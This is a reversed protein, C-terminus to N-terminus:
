CIQLGKDISCLGETSNGVTMLYESQVSDSCELDKIDHEHMEILEDITLKQKHPDLLEQVDDFDM